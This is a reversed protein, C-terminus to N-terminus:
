PAPIQLRQGAFIWHPDKIQYANAEFIVPWRNGDGYYREYGAIRFLYEGKAVVHITHPGTYRGRAPGAPEPERIGGAGSGGRSEVAPVERRVQGDGGAAAVTAYAGADTPSYGLAELQLRLEDRRALAIRAEEYVTRTRELEVELGRREEVMLEYERELDAAEKELRYLESTMDISSRGTKCSLPVLAAVLGLLLM